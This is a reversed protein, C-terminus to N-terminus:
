IFYKKFFRNFHNVDIGSLSVPDIVDQFTRLDGELVGFDYFGELDRDDDISTIDNRTTGSFYTPLSQIQQLFRDQEYEVYEKDKYQTVRKNITKYEELDEVSDKERIVETIISLIQTPIPIMFPNIPDDNSKWGEVLDVDSKSSIAFKKSEDKRNLIYILMYDPLYQNWYKEQTTCWKTGNGYLKSAEYSLPILVLWDEDKHLIKTQKEMEKIRVVDDAHRVEDKIQKFSNFLGIDKVKIRSAKSHDEFKKLSLINEEGFIHRLINMNNNSSNEKLMKILFGLYKYSDSPDAEAILDILNINLNPNQRKLEDIRSM